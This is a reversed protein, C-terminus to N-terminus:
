LIVLNSKERNYERGERSDLFEELTKSKFFVNKSPHTNVNEKADLLAYPNKELGIAKKVYPALAIPWFGAGCEPVILLTEKNLTEVQKLFQTEIECINEPFPTAPSFCFTMPEPLHLTEHIWEPGALHMESFASTQSIIHLFIALPDSTTALLTTCFRDIQTQTLGSQASVSLIAM